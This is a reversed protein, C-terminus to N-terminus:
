GLCPPRAGGPEEEFLQFLEPQPLPPERFKATYYM